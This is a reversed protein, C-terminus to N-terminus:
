FHVIDEVFGLTGDNWLEMIGDNLYCRLTLFYGMNEYLQLFESVNFQIQLKGPIGGGVIGPRFRSM